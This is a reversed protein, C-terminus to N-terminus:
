HSSLSGERFDARNLAEAIAAIARSYRKRLGDAGFKVGMRHKLRMWPVRTAGNVLHHLAAVVLERDAPPVFRLWESAEDRREVEEANLGMVRQSPSGRKAEEWELAWIDWESMGGASARAKRTLLKWPADTAHGDGTRPGLGGGPSRRWLEIAEVMREEVAEFTWFGAVDTGKRCHFPADDVRGSDDNRYSM